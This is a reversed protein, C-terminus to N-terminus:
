AADALPCVWAFSTVFLKSCLFAGGCHHNVLNAGQFPRETKLPNKGFFPAFWESVMWFGRLWAHNYLCRQWAPPGRLAPPQDSLFALQRRLGHESSGARGVVGQSGMCGLFAGESVRGAKCASEVAPFPAPSFTPAAGRRLRRAFSCSKHPLHLSAPTM